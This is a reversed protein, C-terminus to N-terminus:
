DTIITPLGLCLNMHIYTTFIEIFMSYFTYFFAPLGHFNGYKSPILSLPPFFIILKENTAIFLNVTNSLQLFILFIFLAIIKFYKGFIKFHLYYVNWKESSFILTFNNFYVNGLSEYHTLYLTSVLNDAGHQRRITNGLLFNRPRADHSNM